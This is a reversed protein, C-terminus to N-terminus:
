VPQRLPGGVRDHQLGDALDGIREAEASEVTEGVRRPRYDFRDRLVVAPDGYAGARFHDQLHPALVLVRFFRQQSSGHAPSEPQKNNRAIKQNTGIAFNATEVFHMPVVVSTERDVKRLPQRRTLVRYIESNEEVAIGNNWRGLRQMKSDIPRLRRALRLINPRM